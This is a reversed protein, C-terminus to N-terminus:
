CRHADAADDCQARAGERHTEATLLEACLTGVNEVTLPHIQAGVALGRNGACQAAPHGRQSNEPPSPRDSVGFNRLM